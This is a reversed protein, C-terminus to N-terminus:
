KIGAARIDAAPVGAERFAQKPIGKRRAYGAAYKVFDKRLQSLDGNTSKTELESELEMRRAVLELRRMATADRLESRVQALQKKITAATRQRGRRPRNAELADLYASVHRAEVRGAAMAAKHQPSLKKVGRRKAAAKPTKKAPVKRTAKKAPPVVHEKEPSESGSSGVGFALSILTRTTRGPRSAVLGADFTAM